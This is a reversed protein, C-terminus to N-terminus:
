SLVRCGSVTREVRGEAVTPASSASQALPESSLRMARIPRNSSTPMTIFFAMMIISKARSSSRSCPRLGRSAIWWALTNRRREIRIVM